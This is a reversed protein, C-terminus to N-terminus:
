FSSRSISIYMNEPLSGM